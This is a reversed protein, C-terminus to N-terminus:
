TQGNLTFHDRLRIFDYFGFITVQKGRITYKITKIQMVIRRNQNVAIPDDLDALVSLKGSLAFFLNVQTIRGNQGAKDFRVRM